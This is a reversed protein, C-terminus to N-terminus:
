SNAMEEWRWTAGGAATYTKSAMAYGVHPQQRLRKCNTGMAVTAGAAATQQECGDQRERRRAHRQNMGMCKVSSGNETRRRWRRSNKGSPDAGQMAAAAGKGSTGAFLKQSYTQVMLRAHHNGGDAAM